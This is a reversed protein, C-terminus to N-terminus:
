NISNYISEPYIGFKNMICNFHDEKKPINKIIRDPKQLNPNIHFLSGKLGTRDYYYENDPGSTNYEDLHFPNIYGQNYREKVCWRSSNQKNQTIHRKRPKIEIFLFLMILILLVLAVM